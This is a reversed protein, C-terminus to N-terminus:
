RSNSQKEDQGGELIQQKIYLLLIKRALKSRSSIEEREKLNDLDRKEKKTMRIMIRETLNEEPNPNKRKPM